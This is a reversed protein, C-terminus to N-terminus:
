AKPPKKQFLLCRTRLESNKEKRVKEEKEISSGDGRMWEHDEMEEWKHKTMEIMENAHARLGKRTCKICVVHKQDENCM